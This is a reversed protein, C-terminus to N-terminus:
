GGGGHIKRQAEPTNIADLADKVFPDDKGLPQSAADPASAGGSEQQQEFLYRFTSDFILRAHFMAGAAMQIDHWCEGRQIAKVLQSEVIHWRNLAIRQPTDSINFTM